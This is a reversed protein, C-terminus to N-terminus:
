ASKEGLTSSLFSKDSTLFWFVFISIEDLRTANSFLRLYTREVLLFKGRLNQKNDLLAASFAVCVVDNEAATPLISQLINKTRGSLGLLIGRFLIWVCSLLLNYIRILIKLLEDKGKYHILFGRKPYISRSKTKLVIKL